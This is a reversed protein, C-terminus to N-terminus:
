EMTEAEGFFVALLKRESARLHQHFTPALVGLSDAVEEGTSERPWEFFGANYAATM